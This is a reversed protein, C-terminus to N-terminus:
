NRGAAFNSGTAARSPMGKSGSESLCEHHQSLRGFVSPYSFSGKAEGIGCFGIFFAVVVM